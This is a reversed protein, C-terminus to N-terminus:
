EEETRAILVACPAHHVVADSVSGLLMREWRNYGHSGVVILDASLREATEVIRRDPSGYLVETVIKVGGNGFVGRLKAVAESVHREAAERAAEELEAPAPPPGSAVDFVTPLAMDVVSVVHLEDSESLALSGALAVAKQSQETGDIALIVKM